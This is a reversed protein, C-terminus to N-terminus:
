TIGLLDVVAQATTLVDREGAAVVDAVDDRSHATFTLDVYTKLKPETGSPRVLVRGDAFVLEVLLDEGRWAPRTDGGVTYDNVALVPRDLVQTPPSATLRAMADAIAQKGEVGDRVVSVQRSVWVGDLVGLTELRDTVTEGRAQLWTVLDLFVVAASIGDKDNVAQTVNSGLAEEFGYVFTDGDERRAEAARAIWKFGTFTREVTAGHRKATADVMPTSVVTTVILPRSVPAQELLYDTLLVGIENGTLARFTGTADPVAIALRDADPDNAVVVDASSRRALALAEDLAGPEEPNPFTVTSFDPDPDAQSAVVTVDDYGCVRSAAFFLEAGVGHLPTYVVKPRNESHARHLGYVMDLYADTVADSVDTLLDSTGEHRSIEDAFPATAIRQQILQDDPAVIQAGGDGYLKYGNDKPPNHSATVVIAADCSLFNQAFAVLPTPVPQVFRSVKVGAAVLVAVVDDMFTDSKHRADRGVVVHPDATKDHLWGAVAFTTRIVTARNMRNPGAAMAARLGATGFTLDGGVQETLAPVDRQAVLDRLTQADDADVDHAAWITARRFLADTM